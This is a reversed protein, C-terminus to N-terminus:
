LYGSRPIIRCRNKQCHHEAKSNYKKHHNHFIFSFLIHPCNRLQGDNKQFVQQCIFGTRNYYQLMNALTNSHYVLVNSTRTTIGHPNSDWRECWFLPQGKPAAEKKTHPTPSSHSFRLMGTPHQLWWNLFQHSGYQLSDWRESTLIHVKRSGSVSYHFSDVDIFLPM